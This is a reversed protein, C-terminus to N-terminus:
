SNKLIKEEKRAANEVNKKYNNFGLFLFILYATVIIGVLNILFLQLSRQMLDWDMSGLGIGISVVPPLLAVSIAVGPVVEKVSEYSIAFSAAAGAAIAVPLMFGFESHLLLGQSAGLPVYFLTIIIATVVALMSAFLISILSLKIMRWDRVLLGMSIGLIPWLLPAVLMAGIVITASNNLLGLAAIISSLTIMTLFIRRPSSEMVLKSIVAAHKVESQNFLRNKEFM